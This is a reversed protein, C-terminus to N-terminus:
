QYIQALLKQNVSIKDSAQLGTLFSASVDDQMSKILAQQLQAYDAADQASAPVAVKSLQAVTFGTQTQLMTAQGPKLAFVAASLQRDTGTTAARTFAPPSSVPLGALAAAATLSQGTQVRHLLAAAQMEAARQMADQSWAALVKDRALEYSMLAPKQVADITFAYYSGDPGNILQAPDGQHAAFVSSILAAALDAGGPIPAKSGDPKDGNADVLGQVGTLGLTGPMQTLPTQGALADQLADVDAAVDIQAKQLQLSQTVQARLTAADPGSQGQATVKYVYMGTAGAVPGMVVGIPASFVAAALATSPIQAQTAHDLEVPAAGFQKALVQMKGWDAGQKWAAQLRSSSALNDVSIVQVSRQPVSGAAAVARAYAAEIDAQAIQEHPALLAPSLIVATIHRYEPATFQAPHNRWYRQLVADEPAPPKTQAALQVQVIDAFRQEAAYAFIQQMLAGNPAVGGLVPYLLQRLGLSDRLGALYQAPSSNNQALVQEFKTKDFVGNTAFDPEADLMAKLASDPVVLGLRQAAQRLVQKQIADALAQAALQQRAALDPQAGGQQSAQSLQQQYAAQVAAADIGVGDVTALTTDGGTLTQVNSVGWLVFGGVLLTGFIRAVWNKSLKRVWVLM